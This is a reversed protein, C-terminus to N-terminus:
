MLFGQIAQRLEDVRELRPVEGVVANVREALTSGDAEHSVEPPDPHRLRPAQTEPPRNGARRPEGSHRHEQAGGLCQAEGDLIARGSRPCFEREGWSQRGERVVGVDGGYVLTTDANFFYGALFKASKGNLAAMIRARPGEPIDEPFALGPSKLDGGLGHVEVMAGLVFVMTVCGAVLRRMGMPCRARGNKATDMCSPPFRHGASERTLRPTLSARM